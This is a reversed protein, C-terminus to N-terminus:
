NSSKAQLTCSSVNSLLISFVPIGKGDPTEIETKYMCIATLECTKNSYDTTNLCFSCIRIIVVNIVVSREVGRLSFLIRILLVEM